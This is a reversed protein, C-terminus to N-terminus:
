AVKRWRNLNHTRQGNALGVGRQDVAPDLRDLELQPQGRIMPSSDLGWEQGLDSTYTRPRVMVDDPDPVGRGRAEGGM